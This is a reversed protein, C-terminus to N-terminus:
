KYKPVIYGRIYRGNVALERRKVSDQYNGEIITETSGVVKEVIGIHDATGTNDGSGSDQWDYLVIDGLKPM